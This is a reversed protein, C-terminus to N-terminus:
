ATQQLPLERQGTTSTRPAYEPMGHANALITAVYDSVTMGAKDASQQVAEGLPRYPRSILPIRDGKSHRGGQGRNAM